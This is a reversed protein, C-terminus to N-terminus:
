SQLESGLVILEDLPCAGDDRKAKDFVSIHLDGRRMYIRVTFGDVNFWGAQDELTYDGDEIVKRTDEPAPAELRDLRDSLRQISVCITEIMSSMLLPTM